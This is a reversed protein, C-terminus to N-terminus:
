QSVELDEQSEAMTISTFTTGGANYSFEHDRNPDAGDGGDLSRVWVRFLGSAQTAVLYTTDMGLPLNGSILKAQM